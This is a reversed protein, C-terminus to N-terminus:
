TYWFGDAISAAVGTVNEAIETFDALVKANDRAGSTLEQTWFAIGAAEGSRGLVNQYLKSVYDGASPATGYAALYEKQFTFDKAVALLSKGADMQKLWFSLGEADPTRAFAAKYIRYAQGGIEGVAVDFAKTADNLQVREINVLTDTGDGATTVTIGGGTKTIVASAKTGDVRATDVGGYGNINDNGKGGNIINRVDNGNLTDNGSGGTANELTVGNAVTYGGKIGGIWSVYGGANPGTLPAARLDITLDAVSNAGSITDTGGTDWICDWGTGVQSVTALNYVNDGTEAARAGYMFQVAAIDFAMPGIDNGFQASTFGGEKNWGFNYSMVSFISQNQENDGLSNASNAPVGPFPHGGHTHYLGLTHGIEHVLTQYAFGGANIEVFNNNLLSYNIKIPNPGDAPASTVGSYNPSMDFVSYVDAQARDTTLVYSINAVTQWENFAKMAAAKEAETWARTGTDDFFVKLPGTPAWKVPLPNAPETILAALYPNTPGATMKEFPQM